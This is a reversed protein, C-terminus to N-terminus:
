SRRRAVLVCIIREARSSRREDRSAVAVICLFATLVPRVSVVAVPIYPLWM